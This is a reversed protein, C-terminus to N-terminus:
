EVAHAGGSEMRVVALRRGFWAALLPLTVAAIAFVPVASAHDVIFAAGAVGLSQGLFLSCAFLSVATGRAAPVMQTAHTQLTNHLMYMALGGLLCAPVAFRWDPM